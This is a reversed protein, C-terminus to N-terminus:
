LTAPGAMWGINADIYYFSFVQNSVNTIVDEALGDILVGSDRGITIEVGEDALHKLVVVAGGFTEDAGPAPLNIQYDGDGTM